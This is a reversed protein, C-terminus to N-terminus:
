MDVGGEAPESRFRWEALGARERCAQLVVVLATFARLAERQAVLPKADADLFLHVRNRYSRLEQASEAAEKSLIGAARAKKIIGKFENPPEDKGNQQLMIRLVAEAIAGYGVLQARVQADHADHDTSRAFVLGIKQQWRTGRYARALRERAERSQVFAFLALAAATDEIHLFAFRDVAEIVKEGLGVGSLGTPIWGAITKEIIRKESRESTM